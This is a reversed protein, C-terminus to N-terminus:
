KKHTIEKKNAFRNKTEFNLSKADILGNKKNNIFKNKSLFSMKSMKAYIFDNDCRRMPIFSMLGLRTMGEM